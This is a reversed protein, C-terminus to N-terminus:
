IVYKRFNSFCQASPFNSSNDTESQFSVNGNLVAKFSASGSGQPMRTKSSASTYVSLLRERLAPAFSAIRESELLLKLTIRDMNGLVDTLKCLVNTAFFVCNHVTSFYCSNSMEDLPNKKSEAPTLFGESSQMSIDHKETYKLTDTYKLAVNQVSDQFSSVVNVDDHVNFDCRIVLLSVIFYLETMLNPVLNANLICCYMDCFKLLQDKYSVKEPDPVVLIKPPVAKASLSSNMTPSQPIM